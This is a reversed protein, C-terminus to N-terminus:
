VNIEEMYKNLDVNNDFLDWSVFITRTNNEDVVRNYRVSEVSKGLVCWLMSDPTIDYADALLEIKQMIELKNRNKDIAITYENEAELLEFDSM